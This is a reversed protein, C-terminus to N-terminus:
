RGILNLGHLIKQLINLPATDLNSQQIKQDETLEFGENQLENLADKFVRWDYDKDEFSKRALVLSFNPDAKKLDMLGSKINEKQNPPYERPMTISPVQGPYGVAEPKRIYQAQPVKNMLTNLRESMPNIISEREEPYYGLKTLLNRATDYLGLDLIPKLKVRLDNSAQNFDKNTGLFKRQFENQIRPASMDKEVNSITNKFNTAEKALFRNIDAESKGQISAQEGKKQFIAQQEETAQPYVKKLQDSARQGYNQQSQVRQALEEDVKENFSKKEKENEQIERLAEKADTNIGGAIRDKSLQHAAKIQEQPTLLSLKQGTTSSQPANGPGGQPGVNNPFFQNNQQQNAGLFNPLNQPQSIEEMPERSPRADANEGALPTKNSANAEAYKTLLPIIQSLYRESGPIGAGAKMTQLIVDLQNSNPDKSIKKIEDLSNQLQGRNFGQQVAGPLNQNLSQGLLAGVADWRSRGPPLISVM